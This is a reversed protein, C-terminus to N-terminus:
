ETFMEYDSLLKVGLEYLLKEQGLRDGSISSITRETLIELDNPGHWNGNTRESGDSEFTFYGKYGIENLVTVVGNCNLTGFYPIMHTDGTGMNDQFHIAYLEDGLALLDARQDDTMCNAHGTDWCGHLYPNNVYEIFERMDAGTRIYYGPMWSGSNECLVNVGCEEAKGLLADYFAKNAAFWQTKNLSGNWGAHVVINKIGLEKCIEIQRLTYTVLQDYDSANDTLPNITGQSHAQVFTMGFSEAYAKLEAIKEKWDNRMYDSNNTFSYMGLDIYRFRARYLREVISKDESLNGNNGGFDSTTTAIKLKIDDNWSKALLINSFRVSTDAAYATWGLSTTVVFRLGYGSTFTGDTALAALDLTVTSGSKFYCDTGRKTYNNLIYDTDADDLDCYIDFYGGGETTVTFSLRKYGLSYLAVITSPKLTFGRFDEAGKKAQVTITGNNLGVYGKTGNYHNGYSDSNALVNYAKDIDSPEYDEAFTFTIESFTIEGDYEYFDWALSNTMVFYVGYGMTMWGDATALVKLNITVTDGSAYSYEAGQEMGGSLANHNNGTDHYVNIYPSPATIKFSVGEVGSEYLEVVAAPKLAFGRGTDRSTTAGFTIGDAGNVTIGNPAGHAHAQWSRDAAFIKFAKDNAATDYDSSYTATFNATIIIDGMVKNETEWGDFEFTCYVSNAAPTATVTTTGITVTNGNVTIDTGEEVATISTASVSGYAANNVGVTVTYTPIVPTEPTEPTEGGNNSKCAVSVSICCLCLATLIGLFLKKMTKIEKKKLSNINKRRFLRMTKTKINKGYHWSGEAASLIVSRQM